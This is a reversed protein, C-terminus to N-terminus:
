KRRGSSAAYEPSFRDAASSSGVEPLMATLRAVIDQVRAHIGPALYEVHEWPVGKAKEESYCYEGHKDCYGDQPMGLVLADGDLADIWAMVDGIDAAAGYRLGSRGLIDAVPQLLPSAHEIEQELTDLDDLLAQEDDCDLVVYDFPRVVDATARDLAAICAEAFATSADCPPLDPLLDRMAQESMTPNRWIGRGSAFEFFVQNPGDRTESLFASTSVMIESTPVEREIRM